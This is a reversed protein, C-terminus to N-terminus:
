STWFLREDSVMDATAMAAETATMTSRAAVWFGRRLRIETAVITQM